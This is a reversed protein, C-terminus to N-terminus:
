AGSASSYLLWLAIPPLAMALLYPGCRAWRLRIAISIKKWWSLDYLDTHQLKVAEHDIVEHNESCMQLIEDYRRSGRSMVERVAADSLANMGELLDLELKGLEMGCRHLRDARMAYHQSAEILSVVLVLISAVALGGTVAAGHSGAGGLLPEFITGAILYVSLVAVSLTSWREQYSLRRHAAFRACKTVYVRRKLEKLVDLEAM